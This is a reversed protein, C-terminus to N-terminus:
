PQQPSWPSSPNGSGTGSRPLVHKWSPVDQEGSHPTRSPSSAPHSRQVLSLSTDISGLGQPLPPSPPCSLSQSWPPPPTILQPRAAQPVGGVMHTHTYEWGNGQALRAGTVGWGRARSMVARCPGSIAGDAPPRSNGGASGGVGCEWGGGGGGMCCRRPAACLCRRPASSLPPQWLLAIM